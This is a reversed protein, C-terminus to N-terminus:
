PSRAMTRCCGNECAFRIEEASMNTLYDNPVVGSYAAQWAAIRTEAMMFADDACSVRIAIM